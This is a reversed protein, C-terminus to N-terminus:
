PAPPAQFKPLRRGKKVKSGDKALLKVSCDGEGDFKSYVDLIIKVLPLGCLTMDKRAALVASGSVNPTLTDTTLDRKDKPESKLGAGCIDEARALRVIEALYNEDLEAWSLRRVLHDAFKGNKM